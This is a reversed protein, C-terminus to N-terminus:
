GVRAARAAGARRLANRIQTPRWQGGRATKVGRQALAEAIERNSVAGCRQIDEIIPRLNRAFEDARRRSSERGIEGAEKWRPGGLKVGRAKAAALASRTRESIREREYEAFLARMQLVTRDAQPFDACVFRVKSDLLAAIFALNRSLRDLTAILLTARKRRCLEMAAALQPRNDDRKGSEVETFEALLRWSGGNLYREIAARQAELGLGSEGQRTTSVRFYAVFDAHHATM